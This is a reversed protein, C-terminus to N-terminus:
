ASEAGSKPTVRYNWTGHFDCPILPLQAMEQDSIIRGTAYQREDVEAQIALGQDTHTAGIMNVITMLSTLPQGRWNETIHCFM